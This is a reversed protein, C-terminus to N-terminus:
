RGSKWDKKGTMIRSIDPTGSVDKDAIHGLFHLDQSESVFSPQVGVIRIVKSRTIGVPPM